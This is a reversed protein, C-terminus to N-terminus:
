GQSDSSNQIQPHRYLIFFLIIGTCFSSDGFNIVPILGEDKEFVESLYKSMATPVSQGILVVTMTTLTVIIGFRGYDAPGLTRGMYAHIVYASLNYILESFFVLVFSKGLNQKSM